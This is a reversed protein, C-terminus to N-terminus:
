VTDGIGVRYKDPVIDHDRTGGLFSGTALRRIAWPLMHGGQQGALASSIYEQVDDPEPVRTYWLEWLRGDAVAAEIGQRHNVSLPELRIGSGELTVPTVNIM